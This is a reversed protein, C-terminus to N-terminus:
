NKEPMSKIKEAAEKATGFRKVWANYTEKNWAEENENICVKKYELINNEQFKEM